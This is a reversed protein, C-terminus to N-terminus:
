LKRQSFRAVRERRLDTRRVQMLTKRTEGSGNFLHLWMKLLLHACLM